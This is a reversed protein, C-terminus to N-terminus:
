DKIEKEDADFIRVNGYHKLSEKIENANGSIVFYLKDPHLYKGAADIIDKKTLKNVNSIFTDYYDKPLDYMKLNIVRTAVANATELQIPFIGTLYSKVASLEDDTVEENVIRNM